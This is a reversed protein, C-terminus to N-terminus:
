PNGTARTNSSTSSIESVALDMCMRTHDAVEESAWAADLTSQMEALTEPGTVTELVHETM